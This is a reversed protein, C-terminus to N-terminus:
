WWPGSVAVIFAYALAFTVILMPVGRRTRLWRASGRIQFHKEGIVVCEGDSFREGVGRLLEWDRPEKERAQAIRFVYYASSRRCSAWWPACLLLGFIGAAFAGWRWELFAEGELATGLALALFVTHALLFAGFIQWLLQGEYQVWELAERYGNDSQGNQEREIPAEKGLNMTVESVGGVLTKCQENVTAM